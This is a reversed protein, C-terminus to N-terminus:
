PKPGGFVRDYEPNSFSSMVSHVADQIGNTSGPVREYKFVFYWVTFLIVAIVIMTVLLYREKVKQPKHRIQEIKKALSM